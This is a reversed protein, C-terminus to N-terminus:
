PLTSQEERPAWDPLVGDSQEGGDVNYGSDDPRFVQDGGAFAVAPVVLMAVLVVLVLCAVLRNRRM